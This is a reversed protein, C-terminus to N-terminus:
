ILFQITFLLTDSASELRAGGADCSSSHNSDYWFENPSEFAPYAIWKISLQLHQKVARMKEWLEGHEFGQQPPRKAQLPGWRPDIGVEEKRQPRLIFDTFSGTRNTPPLSLLEGSAVSVRKQCPSPYFEKLHQGTLGTFPPPSIRSDLLGPHWAVAVPSPTAARYLVM